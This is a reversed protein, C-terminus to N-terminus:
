RDLIRWRDGIKADVADIEKELNQLMADVRDVLASSVEDGEAEDAALDSEERAAKYAKLAEEEGDPGEKGVISNYLEIMLLLYVSSTPTTTGLSLAMTAAAM